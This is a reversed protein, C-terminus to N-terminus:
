PQQAEERGALQRAAANVTDRALAILGKVSIMADSLIEPDGISPAALATVELLSECHMLLDDADSMQTSLTRFDTMKENKAM